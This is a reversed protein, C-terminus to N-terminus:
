LEMTYKYRMPNIIEKGCYLAQGDQDRMVDKCALLPTGIDVNLLQAENENALYITIQRMCSSPCRNMENLLAFLSGTLDKQILDSFSTNYYNDEIMVPYEDAYRIRTIHISRGYREDETLRELVWAPTQIVEIGLVKTSPKKGQLICTQSYSMLKHPVYTREIFRPAVFSGIGRKSVLYGSESLISLAKRITIRSVNYMECLKMECPLKENEALQNNIIQEKIQNAIQQYLPSSTERSLQEQKM